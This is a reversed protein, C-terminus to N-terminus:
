TCCTPPNRSALIPAAPRGRVITLPRPTKWLKAFAEAILGATHVGMAVLAFTQIGLMADVPHGPGTPVVVLPFRWEIEAALSLLEISAVDIASRIKVCRELDVIQRDLPSFITQRAAAMIVRHQRSAM